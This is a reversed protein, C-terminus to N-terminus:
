AKKRAHFHYIITSAALLAIIPLVFYAAADRNMMALGILLPIISGAFLSIISPGFAQKGTYTYTGGAAAGIFPFVIMPRFHIIKRVLGKIGTIYCYCAHAIILIVILLPHM